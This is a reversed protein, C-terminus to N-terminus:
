KAAHLGDWDLEHLDLYRWQAQRGFRSIGGIACVSDLKLSTNLALDELPYASRISRLRRDFNSISCDLISEIWGQLNALNFQDVTGASDIADQGLQAVWTNSTPTAVRFVPSETRLDYRVTSSRPGSERAGAVFHAPASFAEEIELGLVQSLYRLDGTFIMRSYEIKTGDTLTALREYIDISAVRRRLWVLSPLLGSVVANYPSRGKLYGSRLMRSSSSYNRLIKRQLQVLSRAMARNGYQKRALILTDPGVNQAFKSFPIGGDVMRPGNQLKSPKADDGQGVMELDLPCGVFRYGPLAVAIAKSLPTEDMPPFVPPVTVLQIRGPGLKIEFPTLMGYPNNSVLVRQCYSPSGLACALVATPGEGVM